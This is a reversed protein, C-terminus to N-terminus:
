PEGAKGDALRLISPVYGISKYFERCADRMADQGDSHGKEYSAEAQYRILGARAGDAFGRRYLMATEIPLRGGSPAPMSADSAGKPWPPNTERLVEHARAIEFQQPALDNEALQTLVLLSRRLRVAIDTMRRLASELETVNKVTAESGM